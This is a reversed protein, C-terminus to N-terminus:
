PGIGLSTSGSSVKWSQAPGVKRVTACVRAVDGGDVGLFLSLGGNQWRYWKVVTRQQARQEVLVAPDRVPRGPRIPQQTPLGAKVDALTCPTGAGIVAEIDKLPTDTKLKQLNENTLGPVAGGAAEAPPRNGGPPPAAPQAV